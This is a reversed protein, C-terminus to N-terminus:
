SCTNNNKYTVMLVVGSYFNMTFETTFFVLYDLEAQAQMRCLGVFSTQVDFHLTGVVELGQVSCDIYNRQLFVILVRPFAYVCCVPPTGRVADANVISNNDIPPYLAYGSARKKEYRPQLGDSPGLRPICIGSRM